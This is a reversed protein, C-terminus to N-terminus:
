SKQGLLEEATNKFLDGILMFSRTLPSRERWILSITRRADPHDIPRVVIDPDRRAEVEVYLSPLVAVGYGTMAMQRTADLSTGQYEESIYGGALGSLHAVEQSFRHGPGLTLLSKGELEEIKIPGKSASIPDDPAACVWLSEEFLPIAKRGPHDAATSIVLDFQGSSLHQDLDITREERVILRLEPYKEHLRKTATPLLYPGVSPLTGLRMRGSLDAYTVRAAAKMDEVDQLIQRAREVMDLGLPTMFAGHRGREILSAGLETELDAIQNSLSPQSVNLRRAADGFRGTDAIAVLYQLQRLTPRM